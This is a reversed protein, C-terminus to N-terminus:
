LMSIRKKDVSALEVLFRGSYVAKPGLGWAGKEGGGFQEEAKTDLTLRGPVPEDLGVM